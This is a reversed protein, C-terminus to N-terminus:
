RQVSRRLGAQGPFKKNIARNCNRIIDSGTTVFLFPFVSHIGICFAGWLMRCAMPFAFCFHKFYTEDVEKLHQFNM